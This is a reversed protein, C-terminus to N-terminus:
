EYKEITTQYETGSDNERKPVISFFGIPRLFGFALYLFIKSFDACNFLSVIIMDMQEDDNDIYKNMEKLLANKMGDVFSNKEVSTELFERIKRIAFLATGITSYQQGSMSKIAKYFPTLVQDISVILCWEDSTLELNNLKQKRSLFLDHKDSHLQHILPKFTIFKEVMFKTSNWRSKCDISLTQQIKNVSKLKDIYSTLNSSKSIMKVLSRCKHMIESITSHLDNSLDSDVIVDQEWLDM